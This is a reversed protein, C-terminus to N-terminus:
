KFSFKLFESAYFPYEKILCRVQPSLWGFWCKAVFHVLVVCFNRLLPFTQNKFKNIEEDTIDSIRQSKLM